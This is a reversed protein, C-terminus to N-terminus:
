SQRRVSYGLSCACRPHATPTDDGSSFVQNIPIVGEGENDLCIDCPNGGGAIWEKEPPGPLHGGNSAQKVSDFQGFNYADSLETRAITIARNNLLYESYKQTQRLIADQSLGAMSLNEYLKMVALADRELLPILPKLRQAMIYPSTIGQFAQHQLLAHITEYQTTTLSVVLDGGQETVWELVSASVRNFDFEQKRMGNVRGAILNGSHEITNIYKARVKEGVFNTTTKTLSDMFDQPAKHGQNITQRAIEVTVKNRQEKWFSKLIRKFGSEGSNLYRVLDLRDRQDTIIIRGSRPNAKLETLLQEILM